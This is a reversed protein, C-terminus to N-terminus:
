SGAGAERGDVPPTSVSESTAVDGVDRVVADVIRAGIRRAEFVITVPSKSWEATQIRARHQESIFADQLSAMIREGSVVDTLAVRFGDPATTDVRDVRYVGRHTITEGQQRRQATIESAVLTTVNTGQIRGGNEEGVARVLRQKAPEVVAEVDELAPQRTLAETMLALRKTDHERAEKLAEIHQGIMVAQDHKAAQELEAKRITTRTELWKNFSWAGALILATTVITITLSTPTMKGILDVAIREIIQATDANYKNSGPRVQVRLELSSREESTLGRLDPSGTTLLAQTRNIAEQYSLFAEMMSSTISGDVPTDPLYVDITPWHVFRIFFTGQNEPLGDRLARELLAWAEEENQVSPYYIESM